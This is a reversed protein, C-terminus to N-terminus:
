EHRYVEWKMYNGLAEAVADATHAPSMACHHEFGVNCIYKLLPQFNPVNVVARSGFTDLPDDLFQGEAVYAKIKGNVDDTSIRAITLPASPARGNIAGHVNEDGLTTGLVDAIQMEAEGEPYFNLPWNGCHFLVCKDPDDGYNNNLDVIAAPEEAALQLAYMSALGTIDTECASPMMKSSMISMLTCVNVGFNEQLSHWCQIATADLDNEAMWDDIVVGLKAMKALRDPPLMPQAVHGKIEDLKAKVQAQDDSLKDTKAFVESFDIVSVAIGSAELLKESYRVTKFADPRTGIAGVRANSMGNAVKCVRVFKDLEARFADSQVPMTHNETLTYSFGYQRLNSSVSIKGCFADRRRDLTFASVDDPYAQLLIPVDLGSMRMTDAVGKEDGFNPLVVVVGEIDAEHQKFLEACVKAESRTEVGGLKTAEPAVMIPTIDMEEFLGTVDARAETVLADPFFDRNGVIVGLTARAM